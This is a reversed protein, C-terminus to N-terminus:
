GRYESLKKIVKAPNGGIIQNGETFSKTVIAGAAVVTHEGLEVEPLIVVNSAIWCNNGIKVSEGKIYEHYNNVDHNMSVITVNPGIWCNNGIKIGNRGDFYCRKSLGPLRNGRDINDVAKVTTSRHVPWPVARNLGLIKQFFGTKIIEIPSYDSLDIKPYLLKVIFFLIKNLIKRM